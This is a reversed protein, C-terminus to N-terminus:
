SLSESSPHTIFREEVTIGNGINEVIWNKDQKIKDLVKYVLPNIIRGHCFYGVGGERSLFCKIMDKAKGKGQDEPCLDLHLEYIKDGNNIGPYRKIRYRIASKGFYAAMFMGENKIKYKLQKYTFDEFSEIIRMRM